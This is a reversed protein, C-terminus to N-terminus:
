TRGAAKLERIRHQLIANDEAHFGIRLGTATVARMAEVLTGDDPPPINGTTEGLFCKYGVVGAEAMPGLQALNDQAVLGYLGFDCYAKAEALARKQRVLDASATPPITNPMELVTTVGGMVAARSGSEWDEKYELGPERFHVHSDIVGPLVYNGRADYEDDGTRRTLQGPAALEVFRGDEIAVDAVFTSRPTVLTGNRVVLSTMRVMTGSGPLTGDVPM